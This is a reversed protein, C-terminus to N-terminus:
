VGKTRNANFNQSAIIMDNYTNITLQLAEERSFENELFTNFMTIKKNAIGTVILDFLDGIEESYMEVADVIKEAIPRFEEAHELLAMIRIISEKKM